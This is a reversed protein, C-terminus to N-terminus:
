QNIFKWKTIKDGVLGMSSFHLLKGRGMLDSLINNYLIPDTRQNLRVCDKLQQIKPITHELIRKFIIGKKSFYSIPIYLPRGYATNYYTLVQCYPNYVCIYPSSDNYRYGFYCIHSRQTTDSFQFTNSYTTKRFLPKDLNLWIDFIQNQDNINISPIDVPWNAFSAATKVIQDLTVISM